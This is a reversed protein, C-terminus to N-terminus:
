YFRLKYLVLEKDGFLYIRRNYNDSQWSWHVNCHISDGHFKPTLYSPRKEDLWFNIEKSPGFTTWCWERITCFTNTTFGYNNESIYFTFYEHGKHRKDLKSVKYKM